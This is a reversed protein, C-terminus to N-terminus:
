GGGGWQGGCLSCYLSQAVSKRKKEKRGGAQVGGSPNRRARGQGAPQPCSVHVKTTDSTASSNELSLCWREGQAAPVLVGLGRIWEVGWSVGERCGQDCSDEWSHLDGALPHHNGPTERLPSAADGPRRTGPPLVKNGWRLSDEPGGPGRPPRATGPRGRQGGGAGPDSVGAGSM